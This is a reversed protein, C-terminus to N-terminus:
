GALDCMSGLGADDPPESDHASTQYDLHGQLTHYSINLVDCARRKNGGCRELV